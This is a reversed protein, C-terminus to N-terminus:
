HKAFNNFDLIIFAKSYKARSYFTLILKWTFLTRIDIKQSFLNVLLFVLKLLIQNKYNIVSICINM